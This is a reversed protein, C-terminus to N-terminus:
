IMLLVLGLLCGVQLRVGDSGDDDYPLLGPDAPETHIVVVVQSIVSTITSNQQITILTNGHEKYTTLNVSPLGESSLNTEETDRNSEALGV